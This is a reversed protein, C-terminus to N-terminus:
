TLPEPSENLYLISDIVDGPGVHGIHFGGIFGFHVLQCLPYKLQVTSQENTKTVETKRTM